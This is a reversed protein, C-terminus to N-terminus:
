RLLDRGRVGDLTHHGLPLGAGHMAGPWPGDAGAVASGRFEQGRFESASCDGLAVREEENLRLSEASGYRYADLLIVKNAPYALEYWRQSGRQAPGTRSALNWYKAHAVTVCPLYFHTSGGPDSPSDPSRFVASFNDGGYYGDALAVNWSFHAGFYPVTARYGNAPNIVESFAQSPDLFFPFQGDHDVAYTALVQTHSRLTAVSSTTRARARVSEFSPMLLAVLISVLGIVLLLEVLTFGARANGAATVGPHTVGQARVRGRLWLALSVCLALCANRAILWWAEDHWGILRDLQGGCGCSPQVGVLLHMIFFATYLLLLVLMVTSPWRRDLNSMMAGAVCVETAPVAFAIALLWSRPVLTWTSLDRVFVPIDAFKAIGVIVVYSSLLLTIIVCAVQCM